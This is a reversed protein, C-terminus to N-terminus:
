RSRSAEWATFLCAAIIVAAGVLVQPRVAEGFFLWGYLAAWGLATFETTALAQAEARAYAVSLLYIGSAGLLGAFLFWPLSAAEPMPATLFAVPAMLLAPVVSGFLGVIVPGDRDARNRLLVLTLAYTVAAFLVAAIGLTREPTDAAPPAGQTAILVGLFGVAAAGLNAMRAREGLLAWAMFPVLLPALFAITIAEALPLVSIAYFFTFGSIAIVLGRLMHIRLGDRGIRPCGSALYLAGAFISGAAFRGFTVTQPSHTQGLLKIVADMACLVGVAVIAVLLPSAARSRLM